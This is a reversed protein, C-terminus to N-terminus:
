CGPTSERRFDQIVDAILRHAEARAFEVVETFRDPEGDWVLLLDSDVWSGRPLPGDGFLDSVWELSAGAPLAAELADDIWDYVTEHIDDDMTLGAARVAFDIQELLGSAHHGTLEWWTTMRLTRGPTSAKPMPPYNTM